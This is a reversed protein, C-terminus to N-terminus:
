WKAINSLILNCSLVPDIKRFKRCYVKVNKITLISHVTNDFTKFTRTKLMEIKEVTTSNPSFTDFSVSNAFGYIMLELRTPISEAIREIDTEQTLMKFQPKTFVVIFDMTGDHAAVTLTDSVELVKVIDCRIWGNDGNALLNCMYTFGVNAEEADFEKKVNVETCPLIEGYVGNQDYHVYVNKLYMYFGNLMLDSNINIQLDDLYLMKDIIKGCISVLQHNKLGLYNKYVIDSSKKGTKQFTISDDWSVAFENGFLKIYKKPIYLIYEMYCEFVNAKMQIFCKQNNLLGEVVVVPQKEIERTKTFVYKLVPQPILQPVFYYEDDNLSRQVSCQPEEDYKFLYVLSTINIYDEIFEMDTICVLGRQLKNISKIIGYQDKVVMNGKTDYDLICILYGNTRSATTALEFKKIFNCKEHDMISDYNPTFKGRKHILDVYGEIKKLLQPHTTQSSAVQGVLGLSLLSAIQEKLKLTLYYDYFSCKLPNFLKMKGFKKLNVTTQLCCIFYNQYLHVNLLVVVAGEGLYMKQNIFLKYQHDIEFIGESLVRTIECEYSVLDNHESNCESVDAITNNFSLTDNLNFNLIRTLDPNIINSADSIKSNQDFILTNYKNTFKIKSPFLNQFCYFQNVAIFHFDQIDTFTITLEHAKMQTLVLVKLVFLVRGKSKLLNSKTIVKGVININENEVIITSDLKKDSVVSDMCPIYGECRNGYELNSRDSPFYPDQLAKFDTTYDLIELVDGNYRYEKVLINKLIEKRPNIIICRTNNFFFESGKLEIAGKLIM